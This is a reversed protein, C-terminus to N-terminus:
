PAPYTFFTADATLDLATGITDNGDATWNLTLGDISITGSYTLAGQAPNQITMETNPTPNLINAAAKIWIYYYLRWESSVYAVIFYIECSYGKTTGVVYSSQLSIITPLSFASGFKYCVRASPAAAPTTNSADSDTAIISGGQNLTALDTGSALPESFGSIDAFDIAYGGSSSASGVPYFNIQEINWWFRMAQALGADGGVDAFAVYDFDGFPGSAPTTAESACFTFASPYLFRTTESMPVAGKEAILVPKPASACGAM